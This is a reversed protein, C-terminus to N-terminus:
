RSTRIRFAHLIRDLLETMAPVLHSQIFARCATLSTSLRLCLGRLFHPGSSSPSSSMPQLYAWAAQKVLRNRISIQYGSNAATPSAVAADSSSPLLDKLSTYAQSSKLSSVLEFDLSPATGNQFPFSHSGHLPKSTTNPLSFKAPVEVPTAISNRRRLASSRRPPPQEPNLEASHDM